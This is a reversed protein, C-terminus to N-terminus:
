QETITSLFNEDVIQRELITNGFTYENKLTDKWLTHGLHTKTFHVRSAHRRLKALKNVNSHSVNRHVFHSSIRASYIKLEVEM